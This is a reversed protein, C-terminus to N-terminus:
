LLCGKRRGKCSSLYVWDSAWSMAGLCARGVAGSSCPLCMFCGAASPNIKAEAQLHKSSGSSISPDRGGLSRSGERPGPLLIPFPQSKGCLEELLSTTGGKRVRAFLERLTEKGLLRGAGAARHISKAKILSVLRLYLLDTVSGGPGPSM